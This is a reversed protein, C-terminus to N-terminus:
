IRSWTSMSFPASRACTATNSLKKKEPTSLWLPELGTALQLSFQMNSPTHKLTCKYHHNMGRTVQFFSLFMKNMAEIPNAEHFAVAQLVLFQLCVYVEPIYWLLYHRPESRREIRFRPYNRFMGNMAKVRDSRRNVWWHLDGQMVLSIAFNWGNDADGNKMPYFYILM